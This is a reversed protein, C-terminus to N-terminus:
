NGLAKGEGGGMPTKGTSPPALPAEVPANPAAPETGELGDPARMRIEVDPVSNSKYDLRFTGKEEWLRGAKYEVAFRYHYLGRKVPRGNEDTMDWLIANGPHYQESM